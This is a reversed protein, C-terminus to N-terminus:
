LLSLDELMENYDMDLTKSVEMAMSKISLDAYTINEQKIEKITVPKIEIDPTSLDIQTSTDLKKEPTDSAGFRYFTDKPATIENIDLKMALIPSCGLSLLLLLAIIKNKVM